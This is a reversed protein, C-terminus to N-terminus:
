PPVLSFFDGQVIYLTCIWRVWTWYFWFSFNLIISVPEWCQASATPGWTTFFTPGWSPPMKVEVKVSFQCGLVTAILKSRLLDLLRLFVKYIPHFGNNDLISFSKASLLRIWAKGPESLTTKLFHWYRRFEPFHERMLVLLHLCNWLNNAELQHKPFVLCDGRHLLLPTVQADDVTLLHNLSCPLNNWFM